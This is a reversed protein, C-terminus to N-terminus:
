EGFFWDVFKVMKQLPKTQSPVNKVRRSIDSLSKAILDKNVMDKIVKQETPSFLLRIYNPVQGNSTINYADDGMGPIQLLQKVIISDDKIVPQTFPEFIIKKEMSAIEAIRMLKHALFYENRPNHYRGGLGEVETSITSLAKSDVLNTVEGVVLLWFPNKLEYMRQMQNKLHGNHLSKRFDDTSTRKIECGAKWEGIQTKVVILVDYNKLRSTVIKVEVNDEKSIKKIYKMCDRSSQRDPRDERDDFYFTITFM